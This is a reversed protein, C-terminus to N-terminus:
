VLQNALGDATEVTEIRGPTPEGTYFRLERAVERDCRFRAGRERLVWRLHGQEMVHRRGSAPAMRDATIELARIEYAPWRAREEIGAICQSIFAYHLERQFVLTRGGIPDDRLWRCCGVFSLVDRGCVMAEHNYRDYIWMLVAMRRLQQFSAPQMDQGALWDRPQLWSAIEDLVGSPLREFGGASSM